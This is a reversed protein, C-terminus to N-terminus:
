ESQTFLNNSANKGADIVGTQENPLIYYNQNRNVLQNKM